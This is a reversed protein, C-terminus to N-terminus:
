KVFRKLFEAIQEEDYGYEYSLIFLAYHIIKKVDEDKNKQRYRTVYKVISGQNFDLGNRAIYEIPRIATQYHDGGIQADKVM